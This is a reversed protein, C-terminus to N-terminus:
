DELLEFVSGCQRCKLAVMGDEDTTTDYKDGGCDDCQELDGTYKWEGAVKELAGYCTEGNIRAFVEIM